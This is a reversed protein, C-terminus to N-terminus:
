SVTPPTGSSAGVNYGFVVLDNYAADVLAGDDQEVRFHLSRLATGDDGERLLIGVSNPEMSAYTTADGLGNSTGIAVYNNNGLVGSNFTIKYTGQAIYQIGSVNHYGYVSPPAGGSFSVWAKAMGHFSDTYSNDLNFQLKGSTGIYMDDHDGQYVFQIGRDDSSGNEVGSSNIWNTTGVGLNDDMARTGDLNIYQPHDDDLLSGPELQGHDISDNGPYPDEQLLSPNETSNPFYIGSEVYLVGNNDGPIHRITVNNYFPYKTETDGSAVIRSISAVTDEMNHRVDYASILGANNDALESSISSIIDGSSRITPM